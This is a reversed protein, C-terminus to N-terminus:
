KNQEPKTLLYDLLEDFTMEKDQKEDTEMPEVSCGNLLEEDTMDDWAEDALVSAMGEAGPIEKNTLSREMNSIVIDRRSLGMDM